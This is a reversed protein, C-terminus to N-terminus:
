PPADTTPLPASPAAPRAVPPAAIQQSGQALRALWRRLVSASSTDLAAADCELRDEVVDDVQCIGSDGSSLLCRDGEAHGKCAAEDREDATIAFVIIGGALLCAFAHFAPFQAVHPKM